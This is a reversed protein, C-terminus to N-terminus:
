SQEDPSDAVEPDAQEDDEEEDDNGEDRQNERRLESALATAMKAFRELREARAEVRKKEAVSLNSDDLIRKENSLMRTVVFEVEEKEGAAEALRAWESSKPLGAQVAQVLGFRILMKASDDVSEVFSLWRKADGNEESDAGRAVSYYRPPGDEPDLKALLEMLPELHEFPRKGSPWWYRHKWLKLIADCCAQMKAPREDRSAKEAGDILEAVYHAM